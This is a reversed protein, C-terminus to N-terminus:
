VQLMAPDHDLTWRVEELLEDLYINQPGTACNYEVFDAYEYLAMSVDYMYFLTKGTVYHNSVYLRCVTDAMARVFNPSM